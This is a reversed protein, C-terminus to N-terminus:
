KKKRIGQFYLASTRYTFLKDPFIEKRELQSWYYCLRLAEDEPDEVKSKRVNSCYHIEENIADTVDSYNSEFNDLIYQRFEEKSMGPTKNELKSQVLMDRLEKGPGENGKWSCYSCHEETRDNGCVVCKM